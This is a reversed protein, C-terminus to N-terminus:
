RKPLETVEEHKKLKKDTAIYPKIILEIIIFTLFAGMGVDFVWNLGTHKITFSGPM